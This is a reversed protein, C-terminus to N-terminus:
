ETLMIRKTLIRMVEGPNETPLQRSWEGPQAYGLRFLTMVFNDVVQPSGIALVRLIEPSHRDTLDLLPHPMTEPLSTAVDQNISLAAQKVDTMMSIAGNALQGTRLTGLELVPSIVVTVVFVWQSGPFVLWIEQGESELYERVKLLVAEATDTPSVVEAIL